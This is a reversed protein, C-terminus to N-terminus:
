GPLGSALEAARGAWDAAHDEPPDFGHPLALVELCLQVRACALDLELPGLAAASAAGDRGELYARCLEARTADDWEGEVLAALDLVGPGRAATEWDVPCVRAPPGPVFLINSPYLQGHVLTPPAAALRAVVVEHRRAVAAMARRAGGSGHRRVRGEAARLSRRLRDGTWSPLRASVAEAEETGAFRAHLRGAWAAAERWADLDGVHRLQLGDVRELFLWHRGGPGDDLWGLLRPPGWPARGLFHRYVAVERFPDHHAEDRIARAGELMTGWSLDKLVFEERAGGALGVTVHEIRFSSSYPSLTRTADVLRRDDRGVAHQLAEVRGDATM